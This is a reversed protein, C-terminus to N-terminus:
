PSRNNTKVVQLHAPKNFRSFLPQSVPHYSFKGDGHLRHRPAWYAPLSVTFNITGMTQGHTVPGTEPLLMGPQLTLQQGSIPLLLAMTWATSVARYKRAYAESCPGRRCGRLVHGHLRNPLFLVGVGEAPLAANASKRIHIQGTAPFQIVCGLVGPLM